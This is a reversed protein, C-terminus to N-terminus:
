GNKVIQHERYGNCKHGIGKFCTDNHHVCYMYVEKGCKHIVPIQDFKRKNLFEIKDLHEDFVKIKNELEEVM